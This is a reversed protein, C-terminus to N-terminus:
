NQNVWKNLSTNWAQTFQSLKGDLAWLFIRDISSPLCDFFGGIVQDPTDISLGPTYLPALLTKSSDQVSTCFDKEIHTYTGMTVVNDVRASSYNACSMNLYDCHDCTCNAITLSGAVDSSLTAGERAKRIADGFERLFTVFGQTDSSDRSQVEWDLNFGDLQKKAMESLAGDIFTKRSEETAWMKRLNDVSPVDILPVQKIDPRSAKFAPIMNSMTDGCPQLGFTGDAEVRYACLALADIAPASNVAASINGWTAEDSACTYIWATAGRDATASEAVLAGLLACGAAIRAFM